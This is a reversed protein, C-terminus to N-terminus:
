RLRKLGKVVIMGGLTLAGTFIAPPVPVLNIDDAPLQLAPDSFNLNVSRRPFTSAINM